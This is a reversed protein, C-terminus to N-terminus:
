KKEGGWVDRTLVAKPPVLVGCPSLSLTKSQLPVRRRGVPVKLILLCCRHWFMVVRRLLFGSELHLDLHAVTTKKVVTM